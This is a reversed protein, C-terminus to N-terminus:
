KNLLNYKILIQKHQKKSICKYELLKDKIAVVEEDILNSINGGHKEQLILKLRECLENPNSSPFITKSIGSAKITPSNLLKILTKDRTSKNGVRRQDFHMEKAFDYMLKKDSLSALDINYNKNTIMKLFDGKLEFQKNTDRFTLLNNNLTIPISNNIKLDNVRNSTSDDVLKFQTSNEPNIIKSLPFMLYSAIIGRDTMLELIKEYLDSIAKNNNISSETITKTINESTKKLPEFVEAMDEHFNQKGLKDQLRFVKVQNQLSVAENLNQLDKVNRIPFLM